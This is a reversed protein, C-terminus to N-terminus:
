PVGEETVYESRARSFVSARSKRNNVKRSEKAASGRGQREVDESLVDLFLEKEADATNIGAPTIRNLLIM